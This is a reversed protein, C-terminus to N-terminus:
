VKKMEGSEYIYRYEEGGMSVICDKATVNQIFVGNPDSTELTAIKKKDSGKVDCQYLIAKKVNDASLYDAYYVKNKIFVTSGSPIAGWKVIRKIKKMGSSTLKWLSVPYPSIDSRFADRSIAYKGHSDAIACNKKLVTFNKKKINYMYTDERYLRIPDSKTIYINSKYAASIFWQIEEGSGLRKVKTKKGSFLIYKCLYSGEKENEAYYVQKGNSCLWRTFPTKKYTGNRAKSIYVSESGNKISYKLFYKGTKVPTEGVEIFKYSTNKASVEEATSCAIGGILACIFYFLILIRTKM